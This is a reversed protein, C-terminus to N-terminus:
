GVEAVRAGPCDADYVKLTTPRPPSLWVTAKVQAPNGESAVQMTDGVVITGSLEPVFIVTLTVVVAGETLAGRKPGRAGSEGKGVPRLPRAISAKAKAAVAHAKARRFWAPAFRLFDVMTRSAV